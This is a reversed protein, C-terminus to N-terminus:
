GLKFFKLFAPLTKLFYLIFKRLFVENSFIIVYFTRSPQLKLFPIFSTWYMQCLLWVYISQSKKNNVIFMTVCSNTFSEPGLFRCYQTNCYNVLM